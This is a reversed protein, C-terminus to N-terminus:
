WSSRWAEYLPRWGAGPDLTRDDVASVPAVGILSGTLALGDAIALAEVPVPRERVLGAELLRRRVTGPLCGDSQPPTVLDEGIRVMVNSRTGEVLNGRENVLLGEFAGRGRAHEWALAAAQYSTSKVRRQPDGSWVRRDELLTVEVGAARAEDSLPSYPRAAVIRTPGAEPTGRTVTIRLRAQPRPAAAAVREVARYLDATAEPVAIEVAALGVRLRELHAPPDVAVGDVVLLTEFIGDGVTLGADWPAIGIESEDVLRGDHYALRGSM